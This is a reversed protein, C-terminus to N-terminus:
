ENKELEKKMQEYCFVADEEKVKLGTWLEFAEVGQYLLMKLGNCANGGAEETLRMFRTNAPRYVLDFGTHILRYFDRDEIVAEETNPALGVSTGQIALYKKEPLSKWSSLEMPLICQRGAALNAEEAVAQAKELSRNLLYVREAGRLACLFAAARAAGGAGLLIVEEGSLSIGESVLARYLGSLDTNYGKFGNEAPVLTNVAGILSAERDIEALYPIVASKHPVTVNVGLLQLARAGEVAQKVQDGDVLFPVYVMNIGCRKALTNHIVPSLTHEVPNGFLGCIRTKGDIM